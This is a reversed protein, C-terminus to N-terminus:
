REGLSITNRHLWAEVTELLDRSTRHHLRSVVQPRVGIERAVSAVTSGDVAESVAAARHDAFRRSRIVDQEGLEACVLARAIPNRVWGPADPSATGGLWSEAQPPDNLIVALLEATVGAAELHTSLKPIAAPPRHPSLVATWPDAADPPESM